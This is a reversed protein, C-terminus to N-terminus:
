KNDQSKREMVNRYLARLGIPVAVLSLATLIVNLTFLDQISNIKELQSGANVLLLIFVLMGIQTSLYFRPISISSLSMIYNVSCFPLFPVVRILTAHLFDEPQIKALFSSLQASYKRKIPKAIIYRAVIFTMTATVATAFSAFLVGHVVGMLAGCLVTLFSAIPIPCCSTLFFLGFIGLLCLSLNETYYSKVLERNTKIFELTFYESFHVYFVMGLTLFILAPVILKNKFLM